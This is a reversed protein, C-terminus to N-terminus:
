FGFHTKGIDDWFEKAKAKLEPDDQIQPYIENNLIDFIREMESHLNEIRPDEHTQWLAERMWGAKKGLNQWEQKSIIIKNKGNQSTVIKM